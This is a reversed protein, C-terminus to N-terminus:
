LRNRELAEQYVKYVRERLHQPRIVTLSRSRSLLEMVFDNTIRLRLTIRFEEETDCVVRQSHHLPLSKLFKGDLADYSLEIDEVPIDTQQWIGYSDRFLEEVNISQDRKFKEHEMVEINAIRDIGYSKLTDGVKALLYWRQNSEKLFHPLANVCIVNDNHRVLTYDFKIPHQKRIADILLPMQESGVPRHHEALIYRNDASESNMANLLDFNLLMEETNTFFVPQDAQLCYGYNHKHEIPFRLECIDAIDRLLTRMSIDSSYGRYELERNVHQLLEGAMVYRGKERQLKNIILLYRTLLVVNKMTNCKHQLYICEMHCLKDSWMCFDAFQANDWYFLFTSLLRDLRELTSPRFGCRCIFQAWTYRLRKVLKNKDSNKGRGLKRFM